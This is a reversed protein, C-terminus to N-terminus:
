AYKIYKVVTGTANITISGNLRNLGPDLTLTENPELTYTSADGSTITANAGGSNIMSIKIAGAAITATTNTVTALAPNVQIPRLLAFVEKIALTVQELNPTTM